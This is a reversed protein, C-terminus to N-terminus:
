SFQRKITWILSHVVKSPWHLALYVAFVWSHFVPEMAGCYHEEILELDTASQLDPNVKLYAKKWIDFALWASASFDNRDDCTLWDVIWCGYWDWNFFERKHQSM